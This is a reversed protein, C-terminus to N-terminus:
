GFEPGAAVMLQRPEGPLVDCGLAMREFDRKLTFGHDELVPVLAEGADLVDVIM